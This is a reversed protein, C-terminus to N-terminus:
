SIEVVLHESLIHEDHSALRDHDGGDPEAQIVVPPPCEAFAGVAREDKLGHDETARM